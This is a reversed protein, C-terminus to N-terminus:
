ELNVWELSNSRLNELQWNVEREVWKPKSALFM